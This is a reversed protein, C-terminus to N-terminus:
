KWLCFFSHLSDEEEGEEEEDDDADADELSGQRVNALPWNPVLKGALSALPPGAWGAWPSPYGEEQCYDGKAAKFV